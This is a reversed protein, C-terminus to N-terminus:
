LYVVKSAGTPPEDYLKRGTKLSCFFVRHEGTEKHRYITEVWVDGDGLIPLIFNSRAMLKSPKGFGHSKGVRPMFAKRDRRIKRM